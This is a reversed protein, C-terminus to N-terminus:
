VGLEGLAEAISGSDRETSAKYALWAAEDWIEIRNYLGAAVVKKSLAAFKRLYEPIIIRGQRDIELDYAGALMLRAFARSNAKSLPLNALKAALIEWESKPYIFLSKDLGRTIVAESNLKIRFKSPVAIRGKVDMSITYEGIFM